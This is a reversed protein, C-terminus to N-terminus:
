FNYKTEWLLDEDWTGRFRFDKPFNLPSAAKKEIKQSSQFSFFFGKMNTPSKRHVRCPYLVQTKAEARAQVPMAGTRAAVPLQRGHLWYRPVM